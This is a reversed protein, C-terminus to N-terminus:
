KNKKKKKLQLESSCWQSKRMMQLAFLEYRIIRLPDAKGAQVAACIVEPVQQPVFHSGSKSFLESSTPQKPFVSQPHKAGLIYHKHLM